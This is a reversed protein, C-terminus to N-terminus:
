VLESLQQLIKVYREGIDNRKEIELEHMTKQYM